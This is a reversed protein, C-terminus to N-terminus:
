QQSKKPCGTPRSTSRKFLKDFGSFFRPMMPRQQYSALIILLPGIFFVSIIQIPLERSGGGKQCHWFKSLAQYSWKKPVCLRNVPAEYLVKESKWEHIYKRRWSIKETEFLWHLKFFFIFRSPNNDFPFISIFPHSSIQMTSSGSYQLSKCSSFIVKVAAHKQKMWFIKWDSGDFCRQLRYIAYWRSIYIM